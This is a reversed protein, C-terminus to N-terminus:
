TDQTPSMNACRHYIVKVMPNSSLIYGNPTKAKVESPLLLSRRSMRYYLDYDEACLRANEALEGMIGSGRTCYYQVKAFTVSCKARCGEVVYCRLWVRAGSNIM